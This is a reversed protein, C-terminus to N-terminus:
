WIERRSRLRVSREDDNSCRQFWESTAQNISYIIGYAFVNMCRSFDKRKTRASRYRWMINSRTMLRVDSIAQNFQQYSLEIGKASTGKASVSEYLRVLKRGLAKLIWKMGSDMRRRRWSDVTRRSWQRSWCWLFIMSKRRPWVNMSQGYESLKRGFIYTVPTPTTTGV